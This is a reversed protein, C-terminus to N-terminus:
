RVVPDAAGLLGLEHRRPAGEWDGEALCAFAGTRVALGLRDKLSEGALQAALFGAVFADGAGVTDVPRIAVAPVQETTTGEVALAGRAGLKLVATAPGADALARALDLDSRDGEVILRAEDDGAFVIDVFPLIEAYFSRADDASWLRARHNLDFSVPTGVERAMAAAARVADRASDSLAATIGTLHLMSADRLLVPDIDAPSLLSAASGARHYIVEVTDPTRKVKMMLATPASTDRAAVTSVGEAHLERLILDGASDAGLRSVWTTAVGLRSLGIAVNSEAGGFGLHLATAHALPGVRDTSLRLLSEGVTVVGPASM